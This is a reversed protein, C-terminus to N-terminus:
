EVRVGRKELDVYISERVVTDYVEPFKKSIDEIRNRVEKVDIYRVFESLEEIDLVLSHVEADGAFSFMGYSPDHRLGGSESYYVIDM